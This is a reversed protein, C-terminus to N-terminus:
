LEYKYFVVLPVVIRTLPKGIQLNLGLWTHSYTLKLKKLESVHNGKDFIKMFVYHFFVFRVCFINWTFNPKNQNKRLIFSM